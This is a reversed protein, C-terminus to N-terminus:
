TVVSIGTTIKTPLKKLGTTNATQTKSRSSYEPTLGSPCAEASVTGRSTAANPTPPNSPTVSAASMSDTASLWMGPIKHSGPTATM